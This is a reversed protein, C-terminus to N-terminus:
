EHIEGAKPLRVSVTTGQNPQSLISFQGDLLKTRERMSILGLGDPLVSEVDFGSGDDKIEMEVSHENTRILFSATSTNAHKKINNLAEQGIKWLGLEIHGPINDVFIDVKINIGLQKGYTCFRAQLGEKVQDSRLQWILAKMQALAEKSMHHVDDLAEIIQPENTQRKIGQTTYMISFLQQNVSDHLDRALRNREELVKMTQERESLRIREWASGIQFAISELIHLEEQSFAKKEPSAINLLGFLEEGSKLPVSAHHTIGEIDGRNFTIADEIRKCEIINTAKDLRGDACRNICYCGGERMYRKNEYQLAHPLHSEAILTFSKEEGLLFIWGSQLNTLELIRDLVEEFMSRMNTEKNLMEAISKILFLEHNRNM